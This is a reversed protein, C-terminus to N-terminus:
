VMKYNHAVSCFDVNSNSALFQAIDNLTPNHDLEEEKVVEKGKNSNERIGRIVWYEEIEVLSKAVVEVESIRRM